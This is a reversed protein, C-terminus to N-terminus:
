PAAVAAPRQLRPAIPLLHRDAVYRHAEDRGAMDEAARLCDDLMAAAPDHDRAVVLAPGVRGAGAELRLGAVEEDGLRGEPQRDEAVRRVAVLDLLQQMRDPEVGLAAVEDADVGEAFALPEDGEQASGAVALRNVQM